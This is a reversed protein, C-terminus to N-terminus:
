AWRVSVYLRQAGERNYDNPLAFGRTKAGLRPCSDTHTSFASSPATSRKISMSPTGCLVYNRIECTTFALPVFRLLLKSRRFASLEVRETTDSRREFEPAKEGVMIEHGTEETSDSLWRVEFPNYLSHRKVNSTNANLHQDAVRRM